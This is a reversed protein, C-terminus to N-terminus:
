TPEGGLLCDEKFATTRPLLLSGAQRAKGWEPGEGLGAYGPVRPTFAEM